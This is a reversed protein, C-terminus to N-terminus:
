LSRSLLAQLSITPISFIDSEGSSYDGSDQENEMDDDGAKEVKTVQSNYEEHAWRKFESWDETYNAPEKKAEIVLKEEAKQREDEDVNETKVNAEQEDNDMEAMGSPETKIGVGEGDM